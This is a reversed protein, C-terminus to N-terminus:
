KKMKEILGLLNDAKPIGKFSKLMREAEDLGDKPQKLLDVGMVLTNALAIGYANPNVDALVRRIDLAESYAKEADKLRNQDNYLNALNNLTMAVDPEYASPNVETLTRRIALVEVYSKEADELRNQDNYLVALNNLTTAMDSEYVSPNVTTLARYIIIAEIYLREADKLRNQNNYLNALNNLTTAVYPEYASPNVEALTRRIALAEIYSKEADELRNQDRYLNALNNLTTAVDPEYVSPNVEALTRRIALAEIYSKEADLLRNQARYLIALNNLTMAVDPEYTDASARRIAIAEIYSKEADVLRNQDRYLIALNNLTTAVDPEYTSPNIEALARRIALAEIYSNEADELRNQDNYLVALNNLSTAKHEKKLELDLHVIQLQRIADTHRNQKALYNSYALSNDFSRDFRISRQYAEDAKEYEDKMYYLDAQILIAKASEIVKDRAKDFDISELYLLAEDIGKSDLIKEVKEIIVVESRFAKLREELDRIKLEFVVKKDELLTIKQSLRLSEEVSGGTELRAKLRDIESDRRKLEDIFFDNQMHSALANDLAKTTENANDSENIKVFSLIVFIVVGLIMLEVSGNAFVFAAADWFLEEYAALPVDQIQQHAYAEIKSGFKWAIEERFTFLLVLYSVSWYSKSARLQKIIDIINMILPHQTTRTFRELLTM